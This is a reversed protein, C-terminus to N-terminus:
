SRDVRSSAGPVRSRTGQRSFRGAASCTIRRAAVRALAGEGLGLDESMETREEETLQAAEAELQACM